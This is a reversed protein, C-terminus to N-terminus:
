KVLEEKPVIGLAKGAFGMNASVRNFQSPPVLKKDILHKCIDYCEKIHGCYSGNVAIEDLCKYQYVDRFIFLSDNAPFPIQAALKAFSYALVFRKKGRLYEALNCLSEARSPRIEYARLMHKIINEDPENLRMACQGIRWQAYFQEEAWGGLEVRRRYAEKSKKFDGYDFYSQGLYFWYRANNPDKKLAERLIVADKQYKQPDQARAGGCRGILYYDGQLRGQSKALDSHAYEHLVGVYRWKLGSKFLQHRWHSFEKGIRMAYADHHLNILLPTGHIGDDADMVWMYDCKGDALNMSETRNYGFNVWPREHLEGPINQAAFFKKIVEQTGDTSGTDVIVWYNIFPVVQKLMAEIIKAENKVIMTLCITTPKGNAIDSKHIFDYDKLTSGWLQRAYINDTDHGTYKEGSYHEPIFYHSPHIMFDVGTNGLVYKNYADTLRGPGVTKWAMDEVVSKMAGIDDIIHKIFSNGPEAALYGAALLGPRVRENEFCTVVSLDFLKDELPRVCISDADVAFGGHEFLIEYRMMDAVGNLEKQKMAQIHAKNRWPIADLEKNGWVRVEWSPNKTRWTDICNDPRKSEDGVWIIHIIKPIKM